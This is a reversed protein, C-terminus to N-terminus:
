PGRHRVHLCISTMADGGYPNEDAELVTLVEATYGHKNPKDICYSLATADPQGIVDKLLEM